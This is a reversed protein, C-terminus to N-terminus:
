IKSACEFQAFSKWSMQHLQPKADVEDRIHAASARIRIRERRKETKVRRTM